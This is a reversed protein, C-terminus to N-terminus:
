TADQIRKNGGGRGHSFVEGDELSLGPMWSVCASISLYCRLCCMHIVCSLHIYFLVVTTSILPLFQVCHFVFIFSFQDDMLCAKQSFLHLILSNNVERPIQEHRSVFSLRFGSLFHVLFSPIYMQWTCIDYQQLADVCTCKNCSVHEYIHVHVFANNNEICM